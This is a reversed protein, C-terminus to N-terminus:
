SVRILGKQAAVLATYTVIETRWAYFTTREISLAQCIYQESMDSFYKLELLRGKEQKAYRVITQEIAEVWRAADQQEHELAVMQLVKSATPDSKHAVGGGGPSPPTRSRYLVDERQAALEEAKRRLEHYHYLRWEVQKYTRRNLVAV